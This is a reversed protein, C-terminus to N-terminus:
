YAWLGYFLSKMAEVAAEAWSMRYRRSSPLAHRIIEISQPFLDRFTMYSRHMHVDSTVLLIDRCNLTEVLPLSQQANGYTTESRKELLIDEEKIEPYYAWLPFIEALTSAANVGSIILKKVRRQSLLDLGERIRGPGGTLVVACDATTLQSWATVKEAQIRDLHSKFKLISLVGLALFLFVWPALTKLM